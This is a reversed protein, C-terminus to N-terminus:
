STLADWIATEFSSPSSYEYRRFHSKSVKIVQSELWQNDGEFEKRLEEIRNSITDFFDKSNESSYFIVKREFKVSTTLENISEWVYEIEVNPILMNGMRGSKKFKIPERQKKSWRQAVSFMKSWGPLKDYGLSAEKLVDGVIKDIKNEKNAM